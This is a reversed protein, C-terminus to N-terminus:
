ALPFRRPNVLYGPPNPGSIQLTEDTIARVFNGFTGYGGWHSQRVIDGLRNRIEQAATAMSVPAQADAVLHILQQRMQRRLDRDASWIREDTRPSSHVEHLRGHRCAVRVAADALEGALKAAESPTLMLINAAGERQAEENAATRATRDGAAAIILSAKGHPLIVYSLVEPGEGASQSEHETTGASPSETTLKLNLGSPPERDEADSGLASPVHRRPPLGLRERQYCVSSTTPRWGTKDSVYDAVMSYTVGPATLLAHLETDPPWRHDRSNTVTINTAMIGGKLPCFGHRTALGAESAVACGPALATTGVTPAACEPEWSTTPLGTLLIRNSACAALMAM